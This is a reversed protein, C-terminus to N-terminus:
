RGCFPRSGPAGPRKKRIMGYIGTLGTAMFAITSPEPVPPPPTGAKFEGHLFVYGGEVAQFSLRWNGCCPFKLLLDAFTDGSGVQGSVSGNLDGFESFACCFLLLQDPDYSKGLITVSTFPGVFLQSLVVQDLDEIVDSCWAFCNMGGFATIETRPGIFTVFANDGSGDNPGMSVTVYSIQVNLFPISDAYASPALVALLVLVVTSFRKM